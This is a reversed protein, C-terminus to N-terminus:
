IFPHLKIKGNDVRIEKYAKLKIEMGEVMDKIELDKTELDKIGLDKTEMNNHAKIELHNLILNAIKVVKLKVAKVIEM